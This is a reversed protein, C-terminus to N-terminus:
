SGVGFRFPYTVKTQGNSAPFHWYKIQRVVCGEVRPNSMTTGEIEASMVEGSPGIRWGVTVGGHLRPNLQAESEYCFRLAGIRRQVIRDVQEPSLGGAARSLSADGYVQPREQPRGFGKDGGPGGGKGPHGSGAPSGNTRLTGAAFPVGQSTGGGGSGPGILSAGSGPGLMLSDSNLGNLSKGVGPIGGLTQKIEAGTDSDIVDALGGLGGGPTAEGPMRTRDGKSKGGVRGETGALRPGSGEQEQEPLSESVSSGEFAKDTEAPPAPPDIAARSLGFRAAEDEPPRLESPEELPAPTMLARTVGLMGLHLTSSSLLALFALTEVRSGTAIRPPQAGYQFFLSFLGYQLLGYDGPVLGVKAGLRAVSVPDEDRGRLSLSGSLVGDASLEWGGDPSARFPRESMLVGDPIPLVAGKGDGMEFSEGRALTRVNMVTTGWVAAVHLVESGNAAAFTM